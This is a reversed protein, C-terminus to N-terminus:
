SHSNVPCGNLPKELDALLTDVDGRYTSSSDIEVESDSHWHRVRCCLSALAGLFLRPYGIRPDFRGSALHELIGAFLDIHDPKKLVSAAARRYDSGFGQAELSKRLLPRLRIDAFRKLYTTMDEKGNKGNDPSPASESKTPKKTNKIQPPSDNLKKQSNDDEGSAKTTRLREIGFAVIELLEAESYQTMAQKVALLPLIGEPIGNDLLDEIDRDDFKGDLYLDLQSPTWNVEPHSALAKLNEPDPNGLGDRWTMLGSGTMGLERALGAWSKCRRKHVVKIFEALRDSRKKTIQSLILTTDQYYSLYTKHFSM